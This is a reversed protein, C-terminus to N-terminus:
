LIIHVIELLKRAWFKQSPQSSTLLFPGVNKKRESCIFIQFIRAALSPANRISDKKASRGFHMREFLAKAAHFMPPQRKPYQISFAFFLHIMILPLARMWQQLLKCKYLWTDDGDIEHFAIISSFCDDIRYLQIKIVCMRRISADHRVFKIQVAIFNACFSSIIFVLRNASHQPATTKTSLAFSREDIPNQLSVAGGRRKHRTWAFVTRARWNHQGCEVNCTFQDSTKRMRKRQGIWNWRRAQSRNWRSKAKALEVYHGLTIFWKIIIIAPLIYPEILM